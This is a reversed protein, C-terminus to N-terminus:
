SNFIVQRLQLMEITLSYHYLSEDEGKFRMQGLDPVNGRMWVSPVDIDIPLNKKKKKKVADCFTSNHTM